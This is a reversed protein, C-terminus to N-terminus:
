WFGSCRIYLGLLGWIVLRCSVNTPGLAFGLPLNICFGTLISPTLSVVIEYHLHAFRVENQIGLSDVAMRLARCGSVGDRVLVHPILM